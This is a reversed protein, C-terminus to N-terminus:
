GRRSKRKTTRRKKTNEKLEYREIASSVDISRTEPGGPKVHTVIRTKPKATGNPDLRAKMVTLMGDPRKKGKPTLRVGEGVRGGGDEFRGVRVWEHEILNSIFLSPEIGVAKAMVELKQFLEGQMRRQWEVFTKIPDISSGVNRDDGRTPDVHITYAWYADLEKRITEMNARALNHFLIKTEENASFTSDIGSILGKWVAASLGSLCASCPANGRCGSVECRISSM